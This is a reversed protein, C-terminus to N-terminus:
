TVKSRYYTLMKQNAAVIEELAAAVANWQEGPISVYMEDDPLETFTRNGICGFTFAAQGSQATFPEIACGPRGLVNPAMGAAGARVAAEYLLMGQSPKAPVIVVAPEFQGADAPGYAVYSPSQALRPIGPVEEMRIYGSGVMLGVTDNLEGAREAPLDINHTYTGIACGYHDAPETYFAAGDEAKRWFACGAPVGPGDYKALGAPPASFYGIAVPAKALGLLEKVRTTGM